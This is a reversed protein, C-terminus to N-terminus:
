KGKRSSRKAKSQLREEHAALREDAMKILRGYVLTDKKGGKQTAALLLAAGHSDFAFAVRWEVKNVTPRLEKMKAFQSGKLTDAWPRGLQHGRDRLAVAYATIADQVAEPLQAFEVAFADDFNVTFPM